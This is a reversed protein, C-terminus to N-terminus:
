DCNQRELVQTAVRRLTVKGIAHDLLDDGCQRADAPEEHNGSIRAKGVLTSYHVYFLDAALKPDQIEQFAGNASTSVADANGCLQKIRGGAGMKPSIAEISFELINELELVVDGRGDRTHDFRCQLSRFM